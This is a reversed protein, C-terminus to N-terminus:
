AAAFADGVVRAAQRFFQARIIDSHIADRGGRGIATAEQRRAGDTALLPERPQLPYGLGLVHCLDDVEQSTWSRIIQAAFGNHAPRTM